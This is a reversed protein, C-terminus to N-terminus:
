DTVSTVRATLASKLPPEMLAREVLEQVVVVPREQEVTEADLDHTSLLVTRRFHRAFFASQAAFFSDRLVLASPLEGSDSELVIRSQEIGAASADGRVLAVRPVFDIRTEEFARSALMLCLDGCWNNTEKREFDALADRRWQPFLIGLQAALQEYAVFAGLGNWHTDTKFYLRAWSKKSVLAPRVDLVRLDSHKQLYGILQDLRSSLGVKRIDDPLYEPYITQGNPAVYFVYPIGRERLWDRRSVLARAWAALEGETFPVVNRYEDMTGAGAYYLWGQKGLVVNDSSSVGFGRVKIAAHAQMLPARFSFHANFYRRFTNPWEKLARLSRPAAPAPSTQEFALASRDEGVHCIMGGIPALLLLLFITVTGSAVRKSSFSM